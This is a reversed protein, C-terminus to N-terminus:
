VYTVEKRRINHTLVDEDIRELQENVRVLYAQQCLNIAKRPFGHSYEYIQKLAPESFVDLVHESTTKRLRHDIMRILEEESFPDLVYAAAIRDMFNPMSRIQETFEMQALIVVQLLKFENTEYNLLGRIIEMMAPSLKQGEDIILVPIKKENIGKFYLFNQLAEKYELVTQAKTKIEFLQSLHALFELESNFQPDLILRFIYEPKDQFLRILIRGVTTKGMGVGGLVVSMGSRLRISSELAQLCEVHQRSFYFLQPDPSISFPNKRMSGNFLVSQYNM